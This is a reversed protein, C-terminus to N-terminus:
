MDKTAKLYRSIIESLNKGLKVKKDRIDQVLSPDEKFYDEAFKKFRMATNNAFILYASEESKKKIYYETVPFDRGRQYRYTPIIMDRKKNVDYTQSRVYFSAYHNKAIVLLLHKRKTRTWKKKFSIPSQEFLFEKKEKPSKLSISSINKVKFSQKKGSKSKKFKVKKLNDKHPVKIWGQKQSGDTMIIEGKWYPNTNIYSQIQAHNITVWFLFTSFLFLKKVHM